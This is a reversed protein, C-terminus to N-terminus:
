LWPRYMWALLHAFVVLGFYASMSAMFIGHFEKAEADTLGTMSKEAM